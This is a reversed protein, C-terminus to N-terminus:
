YQAGKGNNWGAIIAYDCALKAEYLKQAAYAAHEPSVNGEVLVNGISTLNESVSTMATAQTGKIGAPVFGFTEKVQNKNTGGVITFLKNM